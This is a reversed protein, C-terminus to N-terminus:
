VVRYFANARWTINTAAEGTVRIRLAQNTTDADITFSWPTSVTSGSETGEVAGILAVNGTDKRIAVRRSAWYSKSTTPSNGVILINAVLATNNALTLRNASASDLFLEVNATADTTTGGWYVSRFPFTAFEARLSSSQNIGCANVGSVTPSTGLADYIGICISQSGQAIAAAGIAIAANGSSQTEGGIAISYVNTARALYGLAAANTNSSTARSGVSVARAGSAVQTASNRDPGICVAGSGRANGGDAGGNPRAQSVIFAGAGKPSLVLASNTESHSNRISVNNQTSTTADDIILDSAQATSGGGGDARLLSNDIVGTTGKLSTVNEPYFTSLQSM